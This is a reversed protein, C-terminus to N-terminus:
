PFYIWTKISTSQNLLSNTLVLKASFSTIM